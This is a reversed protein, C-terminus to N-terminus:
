KEIRVGRYNYKLTSSNNIALDILMKLPNPFREFCIFFDKDLIFHELKLFGLQTTSIVKPFVLAFRKM